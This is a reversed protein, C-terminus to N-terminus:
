KYSSSLSKATVSKATVTKNDVFVEPHGFLFSCKNVNNPIMVKQKGEEQKITQLPCVEVHDNLKQLQDRILANLPSVTIVISGKRKGGHLFNFIAPLMQYCLSKGFGPQLVTLVDSNEPM